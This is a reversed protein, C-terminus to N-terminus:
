NNLINEITFDTNHLKNYDVIVEEVSYSEACRHYTLTKHM